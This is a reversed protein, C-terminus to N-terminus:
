GTLPYEVADLEKKSSNNVQVMTTSKKTPTPQRAGTKTRAIKPYNKHQQNCSLHHLSTRTTVKKLSQM